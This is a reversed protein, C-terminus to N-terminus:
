GASQYLLYLETVLPESENMQDDDVKGSVMESGEGMDLPVRKFFIM